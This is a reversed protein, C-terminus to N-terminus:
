VDHEETIARSILRGGSLSPQVNNSASPPISPDQSDSDIMDPRHGSTSIRRQAELDVSSSDTSEGQTHRPQVHDDASVDRSGRGGGRRGLGSRRIQTSSRALGSPGIEVDETPIHQEILWAQYDAQGGFPEWLELEPYARRVSSEAGMALLAIIPNTVLSLVAGYVLKIIAPIYTESLNRGGYIPAVIAISIPWFWPFTVLCLIFGQVATWLIREARQRWTIGNAFLDNRESGMFFSRIFWWFYQKTKSKGEAKGMYLPKESSVESALKMGLWSGTAAPTSPLHLLPPWPRRLPGIPGNTLDHHVLASTLLMSIIQQIIVTVGMDGALPVPYWQWLRVPTNKDYHNYTACAVGFNIAGSIVAALLSQGLTLYWWQGHGFTLPGPVMWEKWKSPRLTVVGSRTYPAAFAVQRQVGKNSGGGMHPDRAALDYEDPRRGISRRPERLLDVPGESHRSISMSRRVGSLSRRVGSQTRAHTPAQAEAPQSAIQRDQRRERRANSTPPRSESITVSRRPNNAPTGSRSIPSAARIIPSADGAASGQSREVSHSINDFHTQPVQPSQRAFDRLPELEAPHPTSPATVADTTATTQFSEQARPEPRHIHQSETPADNNIAQSSPVTDAEQSAVNHSQNDAM